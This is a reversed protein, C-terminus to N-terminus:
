EIEALRTRMEMWIKWIDRAINSYAAKPGATNAGFWKIFEEHVMNLTEEETSCEKLKPLITGVEPEYEDTNFEYNILIPDHDFLCKNIKDYLSKYWAKLEKRRKRLERTKTKRNM